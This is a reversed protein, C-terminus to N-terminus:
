FCLIKNASLDPPDLCMVMDFKTWIPGDITSINRNKSKGFPWWQWTPNRFEHYKIPQRRGFTGTADIHLIADFNSLEMTSINCAKSNELYRGGGDKIHLM